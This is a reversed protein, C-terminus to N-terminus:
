INSSHAWLHVIPWELHLSHFMAWWITSARLNAVDHQTYMKGAKM